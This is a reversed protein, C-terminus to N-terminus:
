ERRAYRTVFAPGLVREAELRNHYACLLRLNDPSGRGGRAVPTLHDVQVARTASCRRGGPAVFTCRGQDREFVEDRVAAPVHRTRKSSPKVLRRGKEDRRRRRRQPDEREIVHELALGFVQELSANAPLRHWMLSRVRELKEMFEPAAAFQILALKEQRRASTQSKAKSGNEVADAAERVGLHASDERNSGSRSHDFTPTHNPTRPALLSPDDGREKAAPAKVVVTRVRDRPKNRPRYEAVIGEVERQSKGRMRSLLSDKNEHTLIRSVQSVTSLNVENAVLLDHVERFRAVCRATQIRRGASSASYGLGSTCYDFMSQYGLKLHLRRREIENLHHLILITVERERSTLKNLQSILNDDSLSRLNV